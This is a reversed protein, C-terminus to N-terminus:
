APVEIKRLAGASSHIADLRKSVALRFSAEDPM